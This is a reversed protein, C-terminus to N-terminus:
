LKGTKLWGEYAQYRSKPAGGQSSGVAQMMAYKKPIDLCDDYIKEDSQIVKMSTIPNPLNARRVFRAYTNYDTHRTLSPDDDGTPTSTLVLDKNQNVYQNYEEEEHPSVVPNLSESVFAEM